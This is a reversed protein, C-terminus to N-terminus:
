KKRQQKIWLYGWVLPGALILFLRIVLNIGWREVANEKGDADGIRAFGFHGTNGYNSGLRLSEQEANPRSRSIQKGKDVSRDVHQWSQGYLLPFFVLYSVVLWLNWWSFELTWAGTQTNLNNIFFIFAFPFLGKLFTKIMRSM